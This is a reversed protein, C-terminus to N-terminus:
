RPLKLSQGVDIQESVEVQNIIALDEINLDDPLASTDVFSRFSGSRDAEQQYLRTPQRNLKDRDTLTAFGEITRVFPGRYTDYQNGSTLAQFKLLTGKHEFFYSLVRVTGGNQQQAEALVRQATIGNFRRTGQDLVSLGDQTAFARAAAEPTDEEAFMLGMLAEQDPGVLVVQRAQNVVEFTGPVPFQFELDPHYFTSNETFGQRPNAGVVIGDIARLYAEQGRETASVDSVRSRWEEALERVREERNGPDPHTSQWTPLSQGSQERQRKLSTFFASGEAADYGALTSYEVGLADSEREHDRSYSLSILQAATGGLNLIQSGTEGGLVSQGVVAGGILGIQTLQQRAARQSAHRAAVHGIEHALVVALQAENNLHALLGRSVYIYGAPLAFANVIPSDLVRFTFETDRFKQPTGARRMHSKALVRRAVEDVYAEVEDDDYVGYQQQIQQDAERGLEIEEEWTYGLARTNGTVPNMGRTCGSALFAMALLLVPMWTHLRARRWLTFRISHSMLFIRPHM